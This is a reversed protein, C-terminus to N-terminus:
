NEIKIYISKSKNSLFYFCYFFWYKGNRFLGLTWNKNSFKTAALNKQLNQGLFNPAGHPFINAFFRVVM